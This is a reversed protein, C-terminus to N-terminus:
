IIIKIPILQGDMHSTVGTFFREFTLHATEFERAFISQPNVHSDMRAYPRKRALQAVHCESPVVVQNFVNPSNVSAFSRKFTVHTAFRKIPLVIQKLMFSHM